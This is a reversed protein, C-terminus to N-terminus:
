KSGITGKVSSQCPQISTYEVSTAMSSEKHSATYVRRLSSSDVQIRLIFVNSVVSKEPFLIAIRSVTRPCGNALVWATDITGPRTCDCRANRFSTTSAPAKLCRRCVCGQVANPYAPTFDRAAEVPSTSKLRSRAVVPHFSQLTYFIYFLCCAENNFRKSGEIYRQLLMPNQRGTRRLHFLAGIMGNRLERGTARTTKAYQISDQPFRRRCVSPVLTASPTTGGCESGDRLFCSVM